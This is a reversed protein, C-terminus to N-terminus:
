YDENDDSENRWFDKSKRKKRKWFEELSNM